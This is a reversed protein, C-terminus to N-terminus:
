GIKIDKNGYINAKDEVSTGDKCCRLPTTIINFQKPFYMAQAGFMLIIM